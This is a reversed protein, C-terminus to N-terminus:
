WLNKCFFVAWVQSNFHTLNLTKVTTRHSPTPSVKETAQKQGVYTSLYDILREREIEEEVCVCMCVRACVCACVCVCVHARTM